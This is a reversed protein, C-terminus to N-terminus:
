IKQLVWPETDSGISVIEYYGSNSPDTLSTVQIVNGAALSIVASLDTSVGTHSVIKAITDSLSENSTCTLIDGALSVYSGDLNISLRSDTNVWPTKPNQHCSMCEDYDCARCSFSISVTRQPFQSGCVDCRRNGFVGTDKTLVHKNPCEHGNNAFPKSTTPPVTTTYSAGPKSGSRLSNTTPPSSDDEEDSDGVVSRYLSKAKAVFGSGFGSSRAGKSRFSSNSVTASECCSELMDCQMSLSQSQLSMSKNMMGGGYSASMPMACAAMMMSEQGGRYKAPKQLPVERSQLDGTVKDKKQEVGIFATYKSVVNLDTSIQIIEQKNPNVDVKLDDRTSGRSQPAEHQLHNLLKIGAIRHLVCSEDEDVSPIITQVSTEGNQDKESYTVSIPQFESFMHITNNTRDYLPPLKEPVNRTLGGSSNIELTYQDQYKRLTDQSRKLQARVKQIINKDGSGIFEAHGNGQTAMGQILDHSVSSGIGITFVSVNPNQKVTRLVEETNSVGGDSLVILVGTKTMSGLTQYIDKLVPLIETGGNDTVTGIWKSAEAKKTNIDKFEGPFKEFSDDFIYVDFTCGVPLLAVFQQAAAKCIELDPGRMSGSRDLLIVYHVNNVNVPPLKSFDPVVNVVTCYRYMSNQLPGKFEQVIAHSKADKREITLVIDQDLNDLDEIDFHIKTERMQSLKIKHTKSDVSLIGDGMEIDGSLSLSYPREDVKPPNQAAGSRSSSYNLPGSYSPTYRPMLTLPFVARIKRCDEENKLEVAFKFCIQVGTLPALNGVAVSFVDGAHREMYYATNGQSIAQNYEEKAKEKEKIKCEIVTGDDTKAEFHYVSSEAPVPFTFYAEIPDTEENLFTQCVTFNANQDKSALHVTQSKLPVPTGKSTFLLSRYCCVPM